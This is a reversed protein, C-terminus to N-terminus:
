MHRNEPKVSAATKGRLSFIRVLDSFQPVERWVARKVKHVVRVIALFGLYFPTKLGPRATRFVGSGATKVVWETEGAPSSSM